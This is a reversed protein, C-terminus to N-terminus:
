ERHREPSIYEITPALEKMAQWTGAEFDFAYRTAFRIARLLRLADENFRRFPDGVCRLQRADLDPLGGVLDRVEGTRPHQYLANVTFDRRAADDEMSGYTVADPHRHDLYVGDKRF